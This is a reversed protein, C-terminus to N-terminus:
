QNIVHRPFRNNYHNFVINVAGVFYESMDNLHKEDTQYTVGRNNNPCVHWSSGKKMIFDFFCSANAHGISAILTLAQGIVKHFGKVEEFHGDFHTCLVNNNIQQRGPPQRPLVSRTTAQHRRGTAKPTARTMSCRAISCKSSWHRRVAMSIAQLPPTNTWRRRCKQKASNYILVINHDM